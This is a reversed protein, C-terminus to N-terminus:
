GAYRRGKWTVGRGLAVSVLASTALSFYCLTGFPYLVAWLPNLRHLRLLVYGWYTWTLLLLGVGFLLFLQANGGGRLALLSGIGILVLPGFALLMQRFGGWATRWQGTARSGAVANKRLGEAVEAGNTYMRVHLLDPGSVAAMRYGADKITQALRVDELVSDRVARHGDVALYVERRVLICQGNALAFPSRPDNVKDIPYVAQILGVFPPMIVREWFSGLEIYVFATVMDCHQAVAYQLLASLMGPQPVTDADLFLIWEGTSAQVAQWCAWCKGAWGPPLPQGEIVRLGPLQESFSRAVDGTGDTSNDDLVIVEVNRLPQAALGALCRGLRPAENRAPIIISVTTHLSQTAPLPAVHPVRRAIRIDRVIIGVILVSLGILLLLM